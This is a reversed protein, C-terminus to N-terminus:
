IWCNSFTREARRSRPSNLTRNYLHMAALSTPKRSPKIFGLADISCQNGIMHIGLLTQNQALGAGIQMCMGEDMSNHSLDLHRLIHNSALMSAIAAATERHRGIGNWALDLEQLNENSELCKSIKCAGNVGVNNWNLDLTLMTGNYFLM